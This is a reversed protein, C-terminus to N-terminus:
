SAAAAIKHGPSANVHNDEDGRSIEPPLGAFRRLAEAMQVRGPVGTIVVDVMTFSSHFHGHARLQEVPVGAAAMAEAYAIGEDRLPDFECTAVFAPPLREVKGRLPSARPDTRDAPSCYLDWFWYMLSRTLFYGTANDNYSPRDFTCDTAPCILLQGAIEPGGRDRALQCTVAAINGGASWGAVMVPGPKGGLETAHEAIWRTAAYGDEAATPFRHEPAHRYGVSVFMMGTRRVMDRCFPEDSQEDGLVWGGGHFYVVVPHPGPTAPKYVRYPLAGGTVPLTGDIIDGIPRGAPRGKNFENVFERAGIAGMSEIPPLNLSALLNMVLRVDPQLRVVEGDNCQETGGPGTLKFGLMGRSVVEDCISRYPGVGGTYPMLGQVKGPVNAGTYWTNALRHLTLMSCDAMHRNWGAQATETPEITTFGADRLAALRDVVWDVHQEISVAMNSLVSPSGPGTIMFFNPFGEVTLGLYTQPGQAWADTLSKGGRGTIPHVARIAGTMADFGTAFVIVDVDFSRGNTSICSATIAKIPEQRLNVLTVNPRNYTAYYNTDLCPRKAGFPHDHPMLAAATEPDKVAASIKERILDCILKNGDVDVAQDAWLQTLIYVLDGKGWAEEFRARRETDSLQWSVAMQQPYPVGAMSQRAQERYAARDGQLLSMRDSPAPGNHAPLAFNPTRQFVTLHAAQEAILPISQIASSGTGIVAVRKGALNVGGHPWRGTFYVEGKFDKVGDIEPPKPASLCGTAMIYHRCSVPPGNDTTLQWREAKEDWKAETVKTRFRIDGRLHYRDAVFGLYRLIEPQTAYKESWTWAAELEPDFTYSYDITQIDCRAGPYRNWYWTGGVDGAEELGVAKFGAKRLRHLLYLGAFGAGVVAVDVQQATGREDSARTAVMADPM